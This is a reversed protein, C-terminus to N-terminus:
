ATQQETEGPRNSRPPFPLIKGGQREFRKHKERKASEMVRLLGATELADLRLTQQRYWGVGEGWSLRRVELTPGGEPQESLAVELLTDPSTGILTTVIDQVMIGEVIKVIPRISNDADM